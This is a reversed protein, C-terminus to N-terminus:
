LYLYIRVIACLWTFFSGWRSFIALIGFAVTVLLAWLGAFYAAFMWKSVKEYMAISKRTSSDLVEDYLSDANDSVYSELKSIISSDVGTGSLESAVNETANLAKELSWVKYPNFWFGTQRPSCYTINHETSATGNGSTCYNWLHIQYTNSIFGEEKALNIVTGLTSSDTTFNSFDAQFFYLDNLTTSHKNIGGLNILLVCIFSAITLVMPTFICVVRGGKGM